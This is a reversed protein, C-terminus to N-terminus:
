EPRNLEADIQLHIEKGVLVGGAEMVQNWQMGFDERNITATASVGIVYGGFHGKVEPTAEVELTVERTVGHM